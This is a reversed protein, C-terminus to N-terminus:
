LQPVLHPFVLESFLNSIEGSNDERERLYFSLEKGLLELSSQVLPINKRQKAIKVDRVVIKIPEEVVDCIKEDIESRMWLYKFMQESFMQTEITGVYRTGAKGKKGLRVMASRGLSRLALTPVTNYSFEILLFILIGVAVVFDMVFARLMDGVKFLVSVDSRATKLTTLRLEIDLRTGMSGLQHFGSIILLLYIEGDDRQVFQTTRIRKGNLQAKFIRSAESQAELIKTKGRQMLVYGFGQKSADCYVVFDDPGDPLALVPANCLKEKLIQFAALGLFSRIETSSEPTKWNKVLRLRALIWPYLKEKQLLDLITKLHVEHEEESNSYILIDDIFVIVFKDLYPKCVRNMLDMFIAPANTLGFPMVTFEFHGYRTRFATKPIDEERVRFQHYGLRLDIKSFCCACQVTKRRSLSAVTSGMTLSKTRIFGISKFDKLQEVIRVIESPAFRISFRVLQRHAEPLRQVVCIDDLKKEGALRRMVISPIETIMGVLGIGIIVDFSGLRTPLLDASRFGFEVIRRGTNGNRVDRASKLVRDMIIYAAGIANQYIGLMFRVELSPQM